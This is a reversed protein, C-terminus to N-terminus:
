KDNKVTFKYNGCIIEPSFGDILTARIRISIKEKKINELDIKYLNELDNLYFIKKAWKFKKKKNRVKLSKINLDKLMLYNLLKKIQLFQLKRTKNILQSLDIQDSINFKILDIIIGNDLKDSMLHATAGYERDANLIALNFGGVGRYKPPSPHFNINNKKAFGLMKKTLIKPNRYSILYDFKNKKLIQYLFKNNTKRELFLYKFNIKKNKLHDIIKLFYIDKKGILFFKNDSPINKQM